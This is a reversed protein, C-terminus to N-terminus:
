FDAYLVFPGLAMDRRALEGAILDQQEVPRNMIGNDFMATFGQDAAFQIQAAPDAGAHVKFQGISPAYKLKFRGAQSIAPAAAQGAAAGATPVTLAAAAAM